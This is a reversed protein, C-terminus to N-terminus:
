HRAQLETLRNYTAVDSLHDDYAYDIYKTSEILVPGFNKDASFVTVNPHQLLWRMAAEQHPLLNSEFYKRKPRDADVFLTRIQRQFSSLRHLLANTPVDPTFDDVKEYLVTKILEPGGSFMICRLSFDYDFRSLDVTDLSSGLPRPCFRTGLGLLSRINKPVSVTECLNHFALNSPRSQLLELPWSMIINYANLQTSLYIEPYFGYVM